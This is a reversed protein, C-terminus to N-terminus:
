FTLCVDAAAIDRTKYSGLFGHGEIVIADAMGEVNALHADHRQLQCPDLGLSKIADELSTEM